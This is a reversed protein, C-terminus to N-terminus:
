PTNRLHQCIHKPLLPKILELYVAVLMYFIYCPERGLPQAKGGGGSRSPGRTAAGTINLVSSVKRASVPQAHFRPSVTARLVGAGNHASINPRVRTLVFGVGCVLLFSRSDWGPWRQSAGWVCLRPLSNQRSPVGGQLQHRIPTPVIPADPAQSVSWLLTKFLDESGARAVPHGCWLRGPVCNNPFRRRPTQM